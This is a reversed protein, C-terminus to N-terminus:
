ALWQAAEQLDERETILSEWEWDDKEVEYSYSNEIRGDRCAKEFEPFTMAYKKEFAAIKEDLDELRRALLDKLAISVAVDVRTERTLLQLVEYVANPLTASKTVM